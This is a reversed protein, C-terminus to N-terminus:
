VKGIEKKDTRTVQYTVPPEMLTFCQKCCEASRLRSGYVISVCGTKDTLGDRYFYDSKKFTILKYKVNQLWCLQVRSQAEHGGLPSTLHSHTIFDM